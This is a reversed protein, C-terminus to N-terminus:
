LPRNNRSGAKEMESEIIIREMEDIQNRVEEDTKGSM